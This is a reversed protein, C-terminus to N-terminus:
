TIKKGLTERYTCIQIRVHLDQNVYFHFAYKLEKRGAIRFFTSNSVSLLMSISYVRSMVNQTDTSYNKM